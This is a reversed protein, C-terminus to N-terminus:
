PEHVYAELLVDDGVASSSLRTLAVPAALDGSWRPGAGSLTPAVFLLLKDVLGEALFSTALTPGGELLLSQVGEAALASLESASRDAACSSSRATPCRVAASRSGGRSAAPRSRRARRAAPRRRPRNGHRRRRRRLSCAARPRRGVRSGGTVWRSGPVTVRGDLTIASRTPSSRGVSRLGLHALGREATAGRLLRRGRGRDRGRPARAIGDVTRPRSRARRDRGARRRRRDDRRHVSADRRPALLARALRVLTAGRAREGAAGPRAGRRSGRGQARAVGRRRGRRRAGRGRRRGPEPADHRPRAGGPRASSARAATVAPARRAAQVHAHPGRLRLDRLRRRPPPRGADYVARANDHKIGGDVQVPCDVRRVLDAIRDLAEPM